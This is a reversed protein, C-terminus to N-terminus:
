PTDKEHKSLRTLPGPATNWAYQRFRDYRHILTFYAQFLRNKEDTGPTAGGNRWTTFHPFTDFPAETKFTGWSERLIRAQLAHMRTLKTTEDYLYVHQNILTAWAHRSTMPDPGIHDVLWHTAIGTEALPATMKLQTLTSSAEENLNQLIRNVHALLAASVSARYHSGPAPRTLDRIKHDTLLTCYEELTCKEYNIYAAAQAIALALDCLTSSIRNASTSDCIGTSTQLLAISDERHLEAINICTWGQVQWGEQSTSTALIRLNAGHPIYGTIDNISKVNDLVIIRNTPATSAIHDMCRHALIKNKHDTARSDSAESPRSIDYYNIGFRKALETLGNVISESSSADIWAVLTWDVAECWDALESAILSKGCGPPGLLVLRARGNNTRASTYM